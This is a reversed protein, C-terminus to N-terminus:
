EKFSHEGAFLLTGDEKVGVVYDGGSGIDTLGSWGSVDPAQTGDPALIVATGDNKLGLIWHSDLSVKRIDRWSSLLLSLEEPAAM